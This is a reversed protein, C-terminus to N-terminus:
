SPGQHYTKLTLLRDDHPPPLDARKPLHSVDYVQFPIPLGARSYIGCTGGIVKSELDELVFLYDESVPNKIDEHFAKIADSIMAERLSRSKPLHTIGPSSTLACREIGDVDKLTVPRIIIM